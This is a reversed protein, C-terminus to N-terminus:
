VDRDLISETGNKNILSLVLLAIDRMIAEAIPPLHALLAKPARHSPIESALGWCTGAAPSRYDM